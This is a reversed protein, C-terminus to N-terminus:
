LFTMSNFSYDRNLRGTTIESNYQLLECDPLCDCDTDALTAASFNTGPLAANYVSKYRQVCKMQNMQCMQMSGNNPYNYPICDCMKLLLNSRCETMCNIYTYSQMVNLPREAGFYCARDAVAMGAISATSYTSEPTITIFAEALSTVYKTEANDDPYDFSNHIFVRFGTSSLFTSHYDSVFPKALVTLGTQYGCATVKRPQQPINHVLKSPFNTAALAHNNFSCCVGETSNVEQFLNDCRTQTGKWMCRELMDSCRPAIRRMLRAVSINNQQLIAHLQAYEDDRAHGIGEFHLALRFMHSLELDTLNDPRTMRASLKLAAEASIKNMNCITVAPFPINWTAYHTNEIVTTTPTEANLRWSIVLLALSTLLAITVIVVWFIRNRTPFSSTYDIKM